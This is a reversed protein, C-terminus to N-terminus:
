EMIKCYNVSGISLALHDTVMVMTDYDVCRYDFANYVPAMLLKGNHDAGLLHGLEHMMIGFVWTSQIRDRVIWMENGGVHNVWACTEMVTGDKNTTGAIIMPNTSDIKHIMWGGNGMAEKIDSNGMNFDWTKVEIRVRGNLAFNWQDIAKQMEVRDAEGFDGDVYVLIVKSPHDYYTNHTYYYQPPVFTPICSALLM